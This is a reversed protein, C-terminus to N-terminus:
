EPLPVSLFKFLTTSAPGLLLLFFTGSAQGISFGLPNCVVSHLRVPSRVHKPSYTNGVLFSSGSLGKYSSAYTPISRGRVATVTPSNGLLPFTFLQDCSAPLAPAPCSLCSHHPCFVVTLRSEYVCFSPDGEREFSLLYAARTSAM